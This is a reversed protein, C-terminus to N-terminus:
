APRRAAFVCELEVSANGPLARVGVASRAPLRDKGFIEALLDTAGNLLTPLGVPQEVSQIYGTVRLPRDIEALSGLAGRVNALTSLMAARASAYADEPSLDDGFRGPFLLEWNPARLGVIGSTWVLSDHVVVGAYTGLPPIPPGPDIGLATLQAEADAAVQSM